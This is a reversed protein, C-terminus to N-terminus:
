AGREAMGMALPGKSFGGDQEESVMWRRLFVEGAHLFFMIRTVGHGDQGLLQSTRDRVPEFSVSSEIRLLEELAVRYPLPASSGSAESSLWPIVRLSASSVAAHRADPFALAGLPGWARLGASQNSM